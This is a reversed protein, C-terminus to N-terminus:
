CKRNCSVTVSPRVQRVQNGGSSTHSRDQTAVGQQAQRSALLAAHQQYLFAQSPFSSSDTASPSSISTRASSPFTRNAQQQSILAQQRDGAAIMVQEPHNAALFSRQNSLFAQQNYAAVQDSNAAPRANQHSSLAQRKHAEMQRAHADAQAQQHLRFAQQNHAALQDLNARTHADQPSITAQAPRPALRLAQQQSTSPQGPRPAQYSERPRNAFSLENRAAQRDLDVGPRPRYIAPQPHLPAPYNAQGYTSLPQVTRPTQYNRPQTNAFALQNRAAQQDVLPGPRPQSMTPQAPLPASRIAQQHSIISQPPYRTQPTEQQDGVFTYPSSVKQRGSNDYFRVTRQHTSDNDNAHTQLNEQTMRNAFEAANTNITSAAPRLMPLRQAQEKPWLRPLNNGHDAHHLNHHIVNNNNKNTQQNMIADNSEVRQTTPAPKLVPVEDDEHDGIVHVRRRARQNRHQNKVEAEDGKEIVHNPSSEPVVRSGGDFVHTGDGSKKNRCLTCVHQGCDACRYLTLKNTKECSDCKATHIKIEVFVTHLRTSVTPSDTSPNSISAARDHVATEIEKPM